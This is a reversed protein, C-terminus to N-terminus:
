KTTPKQESYAYKHETFIDGIDKDFFKALKFMESLKFENLGNEKRRYSETSVGILEALEKQSVGKEKRLVLLKGQM